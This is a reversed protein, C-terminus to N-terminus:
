ADFQTNRQGISVVGNILSLQDRQRQSGAHM